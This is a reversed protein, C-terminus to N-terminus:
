GNWGVPAEILVGHLVSAERALRYGEPLLNDGEGPLGPHVSSISVSAAEAM